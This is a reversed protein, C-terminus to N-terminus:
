VNVEAGEEALRKSSAAFLSLRLHTARNEKCRLSSFYDSPLYGACLCSPFAHHGSM